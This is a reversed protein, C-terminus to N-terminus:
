HDITFRLLIEDCILMGKETLKFYNDLVVALNNDFLEKIERVFLKLFNIGFNKEFDILCIGQYTRLALFIYETILQHQKLRETFSRPLENKNLKSIYNTVSRTNAWRTNQWFSHASPGFGLYPVHQWYKYNHRSYFDKSQAYNSIEYHEYGIDTLLQHALNYFEIETEEDYHQFRGTILYEYFPTEKEYTLNYVSLHEPLFTLTKDLTAKWDDITQNPLAFILDLNINNFGIKRCDDIARISDATTHIRELIHLDKEHFSQIGISIRNIGLDSYAKLKQLDVTGPNIEITIEPDTDLKFNDSIANIIESIQSTKLLSPTGGGIYITDFSEKPEILTATLDIETVLTKIFKATQSIDVISYFDCYGCKSRCFPIHIYLGAKRSVNM